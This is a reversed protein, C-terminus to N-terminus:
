RLTSPPCKNDRLRTSEVNVNLSGPQPNQARLYNGAVPRGRIGAARLFQQIDFGVREGRSNPDTPPVLINQFCAPFRFNDPQAFLVQVYRHPPGPPPRPGIYIAQAREGFAGPQITSPGQAPPPPLPPAQRGKIPSVASNFPRGPDVKLLVSSQNGVLVLSDGQPVLDPQFWHLVTTGIGNRVVDTDIMFVMFKRTPDLKGNPGLLNSAPVTVQPM